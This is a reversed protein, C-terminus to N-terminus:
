SLVAEPAKAAAPTPPGTGSAAAAAGNRVFPQLGKPRRLARPRNEDELQEILEALGREGIPKEQGRVRVNVSLKEEEEKGVVVIYNWQAVQAERVKKNLREDGLNAEAHLGRAHMADRVYRAYEFADESVPVVMVQRPSLWFPWKGAFHECLVGTMREISGLIARHLIVPRAYGPGLAPPSGAEEGGGAGDEQAAAPEAEAQAGETQYRLNFRLPLQFDLQVTGCQHGRGLADQLRIDIKPGYFAGDGKNVTWKKGTEDLAQRLQAEARNWLEESGLAKKPRTSLALSFEFGFLEYIDFVFNLAASVEERIQDERAFIHADDQQFRRVRTLGSLTGSLENRHLVGFSAMRLPLERYSRPKSDFVMCHGPCNMPKLFWEQGEVNFGYMDERYNQYHGSRKFLEASYINPTIVEDFGRVRYEARMLEQLRNYIKTGHSTWFCSGPSVMANFFFLEQQKGIRRHDREKAEELMKQHDKLQKASPFSVGYIRQLSDNDASGLWYASSNKTVAFAKMRGTSPLHPGRCLDILDGCRYATTMAGPAVKREILDVKFPNGAFLELAEERSIVMRVFPRDSKRLEEVGQEIAPFDAESLRKDGLFMDYYFGSDVAPGITLLGGFKAELAAGLVHSSSHWFTDRGRPDDFKILQLKCSGELPRALDWLQGAAEAGDDEKDEEEDQDAAVCPACGEAELPGSYEVLAVVCDSALKKSISEAVALPTTDWSVGERVSGDPLTIEMPRRERAALREQYRGWLRDWAAAREGLFAPEATAM